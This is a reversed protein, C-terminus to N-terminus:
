ALLPLHSITWNEQMGQPSTLVPLMHHVYMYWMIESVYSFNFDYYKLKIRNKQQQQSM